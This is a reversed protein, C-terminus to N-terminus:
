GDACKFVPGLPTSNSSKNLQLNHKFPLEQLALGNSLWTLWALLNFFIFFIIINTPRQPRRQFARYFTITWGVGSLIMFFYVSILMFYGQTSEGITELGSYFTWFYYILYAGYPFISSILLINKTNM